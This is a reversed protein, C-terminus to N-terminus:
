LLKKERAYHFLYQQIYGGYMGFKEKSQLELQKQNGEIDYWSFLIKKIWTDVPFAEFHHIAFLCICDAVKSGVGDFSTLLNHSTYYSAHSIQTLLEPNKSIKEAISLIYKARYGVKSEKLLELAHINSSLQIPTPFLYIDYKENYLGFKESILQINNEIKKQNAAASCVFSIITQFLDCKLIKLGLYHNYAEKFYSDHMFYTLKKHDFNLGLFEKLSEELINEYYLINGEQKM